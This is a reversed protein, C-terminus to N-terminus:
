RILMLVAPRQHFGSESAARVLVFYVGNPLGPVNVDVKNWGQQWNGRVTMESVLTYAHSHIRVTLSASPATLQVAFSLLSGSKTQPNPAPEFASVTGQGNNEPPATPSEAPGPTGTATSTASITASVTVTPSPGPSDTATATPSQTPSPSVSLTPTETASVTLTPSGTFSTSVTPSFTPTASVTLTPSETFSVSVTPSFTCTGSETVTPSPTFSVSATASISPTRSPTRTPSATPTASWTPSRPPSPTRTSTPSPTPSVAPKMFDFVSISYAPFTFTFTSACGTLVAPAPLSGIVAPNPNEVGNYDVNMDTASGAVSVLQHVVVDYGSPNFGGTFSITDTLATSKNIVMVQASGDAKKTAWVSLVTSANNSNIVPLVENGMATWLPMVFFQPAPTDLAKFDSTGCLMGWNNDVDHICGFMAHGAVGSAAFAGIIDANALAPALTEDAQDTTGPNLSSWETIYVPKATYGRIMTMLAAWSQATSEMNAWDRNLRTNSGGPYWHLSIADTNANCQLLFMNLVDLDSDSAPGWYYTNGSAPGMITINPNAAKMGVAQANFTNFYPQLAAYDDATTIGAAVDPENGIEWLPANLGNNLCYTVWGATHAVSTDVGCETADTNTQFLVEAGVGSAYTGLQAPSTTSNGGAYPNAWDYCLAPDGGPFRIIQAGALQMDEQSAADGQATDWFAVYNVGHFNPALTYLASGTAISITAGLTPPM